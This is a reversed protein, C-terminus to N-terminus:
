QDVKAFQISALIQDIPGTPSGDGIIYENACIIFIQYDWVTMCVKGFGTVSVGEVDKSGIIPVCAFWRGAIQEVYAEENDSYITHATEETADGNSNLMLESASVDSPMPVIGIMIFADWGDLTEWKIDFNTKPSYFDVKEWKDPLSLSVIRGYEQYYVRNDVAFAISSLGVACLIAALTLVIVFKRM